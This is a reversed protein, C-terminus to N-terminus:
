KEISLIFNKKKINKNTEKEELIKRQKSQCDIDLKELEGELHINRSQLEDIKTKYEIQQSNENSGSDLDLSTNSVESNTSVDIQQQEPKSLSSQINQFRFKQELFQVKQEATALKTSTFQEKVQM